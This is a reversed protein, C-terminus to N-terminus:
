LDKFSKKIMKLVGFRLRWLQNNKDLTIPFMIFLVYLKEDLKKIKKYKKPDFPIKWLTLVEVIMNLSESNRFFLTWELSIAYKFKCKKLIKKRIINIIMIMIMIM